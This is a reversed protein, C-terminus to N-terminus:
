TIVSKKFIRNKQKLKPLKEQDIKLKESEKKSETLDPSGTLPM